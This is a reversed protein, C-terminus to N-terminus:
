ESDPIPTLIEGKAFYLFDKLEEMRIKVQRLPNEFDYVILRDYRDIELRLFAITEDIIAYNM